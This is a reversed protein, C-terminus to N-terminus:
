PFEFDNDNNVDSADAPAIKWGGLRAYRVMTEQPDSTNFKLALPLLSSNSFSMQYIAMVTEGPSIAWAGMSHSSKEPTIWSVKVLLPSGQTNKFESIVVFNWEGEGSKSIYYGGRWQGHTANKLSFSNWSGFTGRQELAQQLASDTVKDARCELSTAAAVALLLFAKLTM